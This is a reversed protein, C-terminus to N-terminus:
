SRPARFHDCHHQRSIHDGRRLEVAIRERREIYQQNVAQIRPGGTAVAVMLSRQAEIEVILEDEPM